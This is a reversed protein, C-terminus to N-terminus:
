LRRIETFKAPEGFVVPTPAEIDSWLGSTLHPPRFFLFQLKDDLLVTCGTEVVIKAQLMVADHERPGNWLPWGEIGCIPAEGHLGFVMGDFIVSEFPHNRFSLIAPSGHHDPIAARPLGFHFIDIAGQRFPIEFEREM